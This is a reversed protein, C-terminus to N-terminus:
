SSVQVAPVVLHLVREMRQVMAVMEQIRPGPWTQTLLTQHEKVMGARLTFLLLEVSHILLARVPHEVQHQQQVEAAAVAPLRDLAGTMKLAVVIEKVLLEPERLPVELGLLEVVQVVMKLLAPLNIQQDVQVEEL